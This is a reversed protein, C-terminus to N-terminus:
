FRILFMHITDYLNNRTLGGKIKEVFEENKKFFPLVRGGFSNM